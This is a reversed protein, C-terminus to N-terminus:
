VSHKDTLVMQIPVKWVTLPRVIIGRWGTFHRLQVIWHSQELAIYILQSLLREIQVMWQLWRLRQAGMLNDILGIYVDICPFVTETVIVSVTLILKASRTTPDVLIASPSGGDDLSIVNTQYSTVLDFVVITSNTDTWYIKSSVWDVALDVLLQFFYM